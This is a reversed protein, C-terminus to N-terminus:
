IKLATFFGSKIAARINCAHDMALSHFPNAAEKGVKLNKATLSSENM